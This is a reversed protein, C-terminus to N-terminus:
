SARQQMRRLWGIGVFGASMLFWTSPESLGAVAYINGSAATFTVGPALAITLPDDIFAHVADGGADARVQAFINYVGGDVVHLLADVEYAGSVGTIYDGPGFSFAAAVPAGNIFSESLRTASAYGEYLTTGVGLFYSVKGRCATCELNGGHHSAGACLQRERRSIDVHRIHLRAGM